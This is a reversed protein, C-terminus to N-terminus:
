ESSKLIKNTELTKNGIHKDLFALVKEYMAQRNKQQYFGHGEGGVLMTELPHNNKILAKRLAHYHSVPVREDEKGHILFIPSKLSDLRNIPSFGELEESNQGIAYSLYNEGYKTKQIDGKKWLLKLDYVGVFGIACQFLNPAISSAMLASYGGFSAGFICMRGDDINANKVAWQTAQIIDQQILDGWHRYGLEEFAKGYGGSGRFNVQLVAYGRSALLQVEDNYSWYDRTGHPGGHPFVVMPLKTSVNNPKTLYGHLELGNDVKFSIPKTSALKETDLWPKAQLIFRLQTKETDFLHFQGPENDATVHLVLTKYDDTASTVVVRKGEFAQFLGPYWKGIPHKEDILHLDPHGPDFHIAVPENTKRDLVLHGPDVFNHKYILSYEKTKVDFKYIKDPGKVQKRRILLENKGSISALPKSGQAGNRIREIFEWKRDHLKHVLLDNTSTDFGVSHTINGEADTIFEAWSSPAITIRKIKSSLINVKYAHLQKERKTGFPYYSILINESDNPLLHVIRAFGNLKNRSNFPANGSVVGYKHQSLLRKKTGDANMSFIEGNVQPTELDGYAEAIRAALRTDSLWIPKIPESKGYQPIHSLLKMDKTTLVAIFRKGDEDRTQVALYEGTPSIVADEYKVHKAFHEIPIPAEQKAQALSVVLILILTLYKM